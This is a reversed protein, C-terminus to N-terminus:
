SKGFLDFSAYTNERPNTIETDYSLLAMRLNNYVKKPCHM